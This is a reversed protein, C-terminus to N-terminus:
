FDGFAEIDFSYSFVDKSALEIIGDKKDFTCNADIHDDMGFWPEICVYPAGAVAWLGLCPANKYDVKIEYNKRKLTISKSNLNKFILADNAFIDKTIEIERSDTLFDRTEYIYSDANMAYKKATENKEFILMDGMECNFGPHGGITFYMNECGMNYVNYTITLKNELITYIVDLKFDFPYSEKTKETSELTFKAETNSIKKYVFESTKAFGHKKLFYEKGNYKLIDNKLRGVIPFLLPSRGSWVNKDGYWLLETGNKNISMLEAGMTSITVDLMDNKIKINM